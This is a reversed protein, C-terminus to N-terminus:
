NLLTSYAISLACMTDCFARSQPGPKSPNLGSKHAWGHWGREKYYIHCTIDVDKDSTYIPIVIIYYM